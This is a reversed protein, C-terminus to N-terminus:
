ARARPAARLAADAAQGELPSDACRATVYEIFARVAPLRLAETGHCISTRRVMAEGSKWRLPQIRLNDEPRLGISPMIAWGLGQLVMRYCIEMTDVVMSGRFPRDFTQRWWEDVTEQLSTDTGYVIRPRDPLEEIRIPVASVLCIPEERLLRRGGRWPFDGRLIAVAVEERELMRGVVRSIGTRLHIDVDPFRELFGRLLQPLEYNAFIASSGIRLPGCVKGELGALREKARSLGHLMEKAYGALYEGQPTLIIGAPTRIVLKAGFETELNRLRYTLAPQSVYLREASRTMNREEALTSLMAWDQENM